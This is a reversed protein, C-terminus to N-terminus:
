PWRAKDTRDARTAICIMNKWIYPARGFFRFGDIRFGGQLIVNSLTRVSFFKIHGGDWAVDHHSDWKGLLSIALNKFYGHYPTCVILRGRPRLARWAIEILARPRYLHEIVDVSVLADFAGGSDLLVASLNEDINAHIFSIRHDPGCSRRAIEIGSDSGDVGIVEEVHKALELALRGNGSGLECLRKVGAFGRVIDIILPELGKQVSPNTFGEKQYRYNAGDDTM